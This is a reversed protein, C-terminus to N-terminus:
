LKVMFRIANEEEKDVTISGGHAHVIARAASLGIGYGGDNQTRASDCRYFRDFLKAVDIEKLTDCTNEIQFIMRKGKSALLVAIYGGSPTYKAANDLLISFLQMISERNAHLMIDPQVDTQLSIGKEAAIEYYPDEYNKGDKRTLDFSNTSCLVNVTM